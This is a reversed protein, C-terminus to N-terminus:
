SGTLVKKKQASPDKQIYKVESMDTNNNSSMSILTLTEAYLPCRIM